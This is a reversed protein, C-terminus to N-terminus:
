SGFVLKCDVPIITIGTPDFDQLAKTSFNWESHGVGQAVKMMLNGSYVHVTGLPATELNMSLPSPIDM